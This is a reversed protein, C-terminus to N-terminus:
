QIEAAQLRRRLAWGYGPQELANTAQHQDGVVAFQTLEGACGQAHIADAQHGDVAAFPKLERDHMEWAESLCTQRAGIASRTARRRIAQDFAGLRDGANFGDLVPM